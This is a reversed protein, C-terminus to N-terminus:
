KLATRLSGDDTASAPRFDARRSGQFRRYIDEYVARDEVSMSPRTLRLASLIHESRVEVGAG